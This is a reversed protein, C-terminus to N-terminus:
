TSTLSSSIKSSPDQSEIDKERLGSNNTLPYFSLRKTVHPANGHVTKGGFRGLNDRDAVFYPDLCLTPSEYDFRNPYM